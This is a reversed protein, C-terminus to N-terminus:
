FPVARGSGFEWRHGIVVSVLLEQLLTENSNAQLRKSFAVTIFIGVASVFFGIFLVFSSITFLVGHREM